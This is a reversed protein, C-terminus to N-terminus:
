SYNRILGEYQTVTLETMHLITCSVLANSVLSWAIGSSAAKRICRLTVGRFFGVPGQERLILEATQLIRTYKEPQVQRRTKITDFPATALTSFGAAFAGSLNLFSSIFRGIRDVMLYRISFSVIFEVCRRICGQHSSADMELLFAHTESARLCRPINWCHSRRTDHNALLWCVARQSRSHGYHRPDCSIHGTVQVSQIGHPNQRRDYADPHLRCIDQRDRRSVPQWRDFQTTRLTAPQLRICRDSVIDYLANYRTLAYKLSAFYLAVGPVNRCSITLDPLCLRPIYSLGVSRAITPTTGRWLGAIGDAQLVLKAVQLTRGRSLLSETLDQSEQIDDPGIMLAM